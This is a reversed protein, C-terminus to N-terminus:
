RQQGDNWVGRGRAVHRQRHPVDVLIAIQIQDQGALTAAGAADPEIVSAAPEVTVPAVPPAERGCAAIATCALLLRAM